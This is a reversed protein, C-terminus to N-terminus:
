IKLIQQDQGYQRTTIRCTIIEGNVTTSNKRVRVGADADITLEVLKSTIWKPRIVKTRSVVLVPNSRDDSDRTGIYVSQVLVGAAGRDTEVVYAAKLGDPSTVRRVERVQVFLDIASWLLSPIVCCVAIGILIGTLKSKDM